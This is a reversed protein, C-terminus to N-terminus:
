AIELRSDLVVLGATHQYSTANEGAVFLVDQKSLQKIVSM